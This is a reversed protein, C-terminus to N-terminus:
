LLIPIAYHWVPNVRATTKYVQSLHWYHVHPAKWTSLFVSFCCGVYLRLEFRLVFGCSFFDVAMHSASRVRVVYLEHKICNGIDDYSIVQAVAAEILKYMCIYLFVVCWYRINFGNSYMLNSGIEYLWNSLKKAVAM